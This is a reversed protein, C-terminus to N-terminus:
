KTNDDSNVSVRWLLQQEYITHSEPQIQYATYGVFNDNYQGWLLELIIITCIECGYIVIDSPPLGTNWWPTTSENMLIEKEWTYGDVNQYLAGYVPYLPAYDSAAELPDADTVDDDMIDYGESLNFM